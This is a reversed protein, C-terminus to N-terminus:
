GSDSHLECGDQHGGLPQQGTCVECAPQKPACSGPPVPHSGQHGAWWSLLRMSALAVALEGGMSPQHSRWDAAEGCRGEESRDGCLRGRAGGACSQQGGLGGRACSSRSCTFFMRAESSLWTLVEPPHQGPVPFGAGVEVPFWAGATRLPSPVKTPPCHVPCPCPSQGAEAWSQLQGRCGWLAEVHAWAFSYIHTLHCGVGPGARIGACQVHTHLHSVHGM